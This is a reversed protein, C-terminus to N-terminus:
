HTVMVATNRMMMPQLSATNELNKWVQERKEVSSNSNEKQERYDSICASILADDMETLMKKVNMTLNLVAQNWHNQANFELAPFIIPLIIQRNHAILSLIQDNNWLFLTREAVQLTFSPSETLIFYKLKRLSLSHLYLHM